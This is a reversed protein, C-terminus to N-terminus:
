ETVYTTYVEDNIKYFPVSQEGVRVYMVPGRMTAVVNPNQRDIPETRLEMPLALEVRDGPNWIRRIEHFEGARPRAPEGAANVRVTAGHAWAPIRLSVAFEAPSKPEIRILIKGSEPYDTEQVLRGHSFRLESPVYLNVYVGDDDQFYASILYDVIAQPYTGSCCPWKDPHYGKRAGDSYTSYYFTTGDPKIPKAALIGNYVVRELGDGYRSEGTIETLYRALKMTAYSGCPTEFHNQTKTLSEFLQGKGPEVFVEKPGWGGSAFCQDREIMDWANRIAALHKDDGLVIYAMAASGLANVHSYAHKGVMAPQGVALKDFYPKDHLFRKGRDLLDADGFVQYAIFQNEAITYSEDLTFTHDKHPRALMEERTLAKEPLYPTAAETTRKLVDRAADVGAYRYADTLGIVHKDYIYVPFRYAYFPKGKGITAAYGEVLRGVKAKAEASGAAAFRSLASMWQGLGHGPGFGEANYWGGMDVGPAPLGATQRYVKLIRDDDLKLFVDLAYDYQAKLPGATLAVDGYSFPRLKLRAAASAPPTAPEAPASEGRLVVALLAAAVGGLITRRSIHVLNREGARKGM